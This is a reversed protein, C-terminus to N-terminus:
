LMSSRWPMAPCYRSCRLASSSSHLRRMALFRLSSSSLRWACGPLVLWPRRSCCAPLQRCGENQGVCVGNADGGPAAGKGECLCVHNKGLAALCERPESELDLNHLGGAVFQLRLADLRPLRQGLPEEGLFELDRQDFVAGVERNVAQLIQRGFQRGAEREARDGPAFIRAFDQEVAVGRVPTAKLGAQRNGLQGGVEGDGGAARAAFRLQEPQLGVPADGVNAAVDGRAEVFEGDIRSDVGGNQRVGPQPPEVELDAFITQEPAVGHRVAGACRDDLRALHQRANALPRDANLDAFVVLANGLEALPQVVEVRLNTGLGLPRKQACHTAAALARDGCVGLHAALFGM